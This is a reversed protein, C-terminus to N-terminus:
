YEADQVQAADWLEIYKAHVYPNLRSVWERGLKAIKILELVDSLDKLRHLATQGSALKLEVLTELALFAGREGRRAVLAPDPFCVPKPLGDGPYDGAILVDIVVNNETDRMGKSGPFKELYGRGLVHGKLRELGSKTLLVDVDATARRYGYENLAMAGAIAYAIAETELTAILKSLAQDVNSQGMFFRSTERVNAWFVEESAKTIPLGSSVM